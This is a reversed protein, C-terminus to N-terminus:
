FGMVIEKFLNGREEFNKFKDFSTSAPSLLVIDGAEANDHAIEVAEKFDELMIIKPPMVERIIAEGIVADYIKEATPGTLVLCKVKELIPAGIDDYPIGKDKGGAIMVVNKEPFVSLTKLSRNPSSDISSNYYRVGNLERVLEIRHEVGGFTEAVKKMSEPSVYDFVAATAALYNEVNHDGPIMIASKDFLETKQGNKGYVLTNGDLYTGYDTMKVRSFARVDGNDHISDYIESTKENDINIVKCSSGLLVKKAEIYEDYSKHVDLHNPTINTIVAVDAAIKTHMLQFSSLELVVFDDSKMESVKSLLPTGINGGVYVKRGTGAYEESLMKYILTTTTTKGDSGTVAFLRCPCLKVFEEMESTLVAGKSTADLLEPVDYRMGPTKFIYDFGADLNKLYDDGITYANIKGDAKLKECKANVELYDRETRGGKDRVDIYEAGNERLFDILPLNSIGLGIVAAKKGSFKETIM